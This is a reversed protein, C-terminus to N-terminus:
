PGSKPLNHGIPRQSPDSFWWNLRLGDRSSWHGDLMVLARVMEGTFHEERPWPALYFGFIWGHGAYVDRHAYVYLLPFRGEPRRKWEM